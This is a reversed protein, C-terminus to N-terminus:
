KDITFAELYVRHQPHEPSYGEGDPSGMWLEGAPVLVMEAGDRGQISGSSTSAPPPAPAASEGGPAPAEARPAEEMLARTVGRCNWGWLGVVLLLVFLYAVRWRQFHARRPRLRSFWDKILDAKFAKLGENLAAVANDQMSGSTDLLLVCPCRPEPNEAFEVAEEPRPTDAM